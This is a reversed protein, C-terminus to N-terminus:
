GHYVAWAILFGTVFGIAAGGFVFGYVQATIKDM